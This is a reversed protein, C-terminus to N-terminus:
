NLLSNYCHFVHIKFAHEVFTHLYLYIGTLNNSTCYNLQIFVAYVYRKSISMIAKNRVGFPIRGFGSFFQLSGDFFAIFYFSLNNRAAGLAIENTKRLNFSLAISSPFVNCLQSFAFFARCSNLNQTDDFVFSFVDNTQSNCNFANFAKHRSGVNFQAAYFVEGIINAFFQLCFDDFNVQLFFADNNGAAVQQLNFSFCFSFSPLFSFFCASSSFFSSVVGNFFAFNVGTLNYLNSFETQENFDAFAQNTQNVVSLQSPVAIYFSSINSFFAVFYSYQNLFNIAFVFTNSQADFSGQFIGPLYFSALEVNTVDNFSFNYTEQCETSDYFQAFLNFTQNM